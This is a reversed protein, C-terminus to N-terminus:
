AAQEPEGGEGDATEEVATPPTDMAPLYKALFAYGKGKDFKFKDPIGYRNKAAFAPRMEAFVWRDNGGGGKVIKKNMGADQEKVTVMQNLFLLADCNDKLIGAAKENLRLDYRSYSSTTPDDFRSAESHALMIIAMNRQRRLYELARVLENWKELAMKYGKGYGPQEISSWKEQECLHDFIMTEVRDASDVVLTKFSHPESILDGVAELLADFTPIDEDNAVAFGPPTGRELDFTFTDPFELALTNKGIGEPGYILVRPPIDASSTRLEKLNIAM